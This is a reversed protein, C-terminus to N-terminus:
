RRLARNVVDGCAEDSAREAGISLARRDAPVADLAQTANILLNIMVQQLQVRDGLVPPLDAPLATSLQVEHIRLEREVLLTTQEVLEAISLPAQVIDSNRSLARLRVIVDSARRANRIM